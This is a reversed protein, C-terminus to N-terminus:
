IEKLTQQLSHFAKCWKNHVRVAIVKEDITCETSLILQLRDLTHKFQADFKGEEVQIVRM